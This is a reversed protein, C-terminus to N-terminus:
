PLIWDLVLGILLPIGGLMLSEFLLSMSARIDSFSRHASDIENQDTATRSVIYPSDTRAGWQGVLSMMGIGMIIVGGWLFVPAFDRLNRVGILWGGIIIIVLVLSEIIIFRRM